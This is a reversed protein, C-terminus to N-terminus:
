ICPLMTVTSRLIVCRGNMLSTVVTVTKGLVAMGFISKGLWLLEVVTEKILSINTIGSTKFEEHPEFM